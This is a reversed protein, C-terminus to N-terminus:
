QWNSTEGGWPNYNEGFAATIADDINDFGQTQCAVAMVPMKVNNWNWGADLALTKNFAVASGDHNFNFSEDMYVGNLARTTTASAVLKEAYNAYYVNYRIGDITTEYYNWKGDHTWIWSVGNTSQGKDDIGFNFHMVNLGANFTEYGDDLASPIAFYIRVYAEESGTNKVTVVKDVYNQAVPLQNADKEGQASGVIPYLKKNQTFNQLKGDEDREQEILQIHVNGVTFVNTASDTDTFYALTGGVALIAVMCLSLALMMIKRKNM